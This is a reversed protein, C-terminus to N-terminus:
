SDFGCNWFAFPSFRMIRYDFEDISM